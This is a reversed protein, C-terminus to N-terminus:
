RAWTHILWILVSACFPHLDGSFSKGNEICLKLLWSMRSFKIKRCGLMQKMILIFIPIKSFFYLIIWANIFFYVESGGTTFQLGATASLDALLQDAVRSEKGSSGKPIADAAAEFELRERARASESM